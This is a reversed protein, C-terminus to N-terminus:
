NITGISVPLSSTSFHSSIEPVAPAVITVDVAALFNPLLLSLIMKWRHKTRRAAEEKVRANEEANIVTQNSTTRSPSSHGELGEPQNQQGSSIEPVLHSEDTTTAKRERVKRRIYKFLLYAM